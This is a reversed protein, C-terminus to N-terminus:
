GSGQNLESSDYALGTPRVLSWPLFSQGVKTRSVLGVKTPASGKGGGELVM